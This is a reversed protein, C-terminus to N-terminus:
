NQKGQLKATLEDVQARLASDNPSKALESRFLELAPEIKGEAKLAMALAVVYEPHQPDRKVAERLAAEAVDYRQVKTSNVGLYFLIDPTANEAAAKQLYAQAADYHGIMYQAYGMRYNAYWFDPDNALVYKYADIGQQYMGRAVYTTALKNRPLDNIPAVEIGHEYLPIDDAWPLSNVITSVTLLAAACCALTTGLSLGALKRSNLAEVAMGALLGLGILPLYLYRDHVFDGMPLISLDLVPMLPVFVFAAALPILPSRSKRWAYLLLAIVVAVLLLPLLLFHWSVHTVYPTDYFASLRLPFLLHRLYIWLVSPMTYFSISLPIDVTRHAVGHLASARAWFYPVTVIAYPVALVAATRVKEAWGDRECFIIYAVLLVPLVIATEKTLLAAAYSVLSFVLWKSGKKERYNLFALFSPILFLAMLADTVGSIWAVSEVHGPHVGFILAAVAAISQKNSVRLVLVYVLATAALHALITTLHWFAPHLGFLTHNVLLWTLFLPRYYNGIPSQQMWVNGHFFQPLYQWSQVFPNAVIQGLDDYVFHFHLTWAYALATAALVASLLPMCIRGGARTPDTSNSPM